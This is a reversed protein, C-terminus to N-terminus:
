DKKQARKVARKIVKPAGKFGSPGLNGIRISRYHSPVLVLVNSGTKLM